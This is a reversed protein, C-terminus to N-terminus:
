IRIGMKKMLLSANLSKCIGPTLKYDFYLEEGDIKVDFHYNDIRNPIELALDALKLDHTAIITVAGYGILQKILAVSGTYRDNSNTGRLIEDLLLLVKNREAARIIDALKKLEAYFSSTNNELSDSIRMSTLLQVHSVEFSAACVPAGALALVINVGITRLFTSKGSMNSGTIIVSTGNQNIGLSSTVRRDEPILPHGADEAKLKFYDPLIVPKVWDPNNFSMNGLCSLCEFEAMAEFWNAIVPAHDKKWKELAMCWHLDWFFFLNLPIAVMVNMRVDLRSVLRSLKKIQDSVDQSGATFNRSLMTLKESQFSQKEIMEITGAYLELMGSSQAVQNHLHAIRSSFSFYVVANLILVMALVSFPLGSIVAAIGALSLVTLSILCPLLFKKGSFYNDTSTWRIIEAPDEIANSKEYGLTMLEQRWEIMPGLEKVAAQRLAIDQMSAPAKLWGALMDSAPKSTTRNIYQFLSAPGFIDLDHAYPHEQSIYSAGDPFVKFDGSLCKEERDNIEELYRYHNKQKETKVYLKIMWGFIMLGLALVLFAAQMSFSAMIFFMGVAGSFSILRAMSLLNEKKQLLDAQQRFGSTRTQYFERTTM